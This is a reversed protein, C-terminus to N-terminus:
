PVPAGRGARAAAYERDAARYKQRARLVGWRRDGRNLALVADLALYRVYAVGSTTKGELDLDALIELQGQAGGTVQVSHLGLGQGRASVTGRLKVGPIRLLRDFWALRPLRQEMLVVVPASDRMEARLDAVLSLARLEGEPGEERPPALTVRGTPVRVRASWDESAISGARMLRTSDLRLTSGSVDFRGALLDLSPSELRLALATSFTADGFSGRVGRGEVELWGRGGGAVTDYTLDASLEATGGDIRLGFGPPLYPGLVSVDPVRAPKLRFWGVLGEPPEAVATSRTSVGTELDRGALIAAGDSVRELSFESLVAGLRVGEGPANVRGEIRGRGRAEFDFLKAEVEPGTLALTSGPLLSGHDLKAAISLDGSGGLHLWPVKRLYTSLFGLNDAQAHLEIAGSTGALVTDLAAAGLVFPQTRLSSDLTLRKVVETGGSRIAADRFSLEGLHLEMPGRAQFRVRGAAAGSGALEYGAVRLRRLDDLRMGGLTVQWGRRGGGPAVAERRPLLDVDVQVGAGRGSFVRVQRAALSPLWFWAYGTEMEGHWSVRRSTGDLELGEVHVLGPLSTWASKWAASFREPRRNISRRGWDSHLFANGALLYLAELAILALGVRRLWISSRLWGVPRM